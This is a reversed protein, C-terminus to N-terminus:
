LLRLIPLFFRKPFSTVDIIINERGASIFTDISGVLRETREFLEHNQINDETAGLKLFSQKRDAMRSASLSSYGSHPDQIAHFCLDQVFGNVRLIELSALCRDECSLCGLLSWKGPPIRQILWPLLGWPRVVVAQRM